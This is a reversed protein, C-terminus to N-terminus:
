KWGTNYLHHEWGLDIGTGHCIPCRIIKEGECAQCLYGQRMGEVTRFVKGNGQCTACPCKGAGYCHPCKLIGKQSESLSPLAFPVTSTSGSAAAAAPAGPSSGKPSSATDEEAPKREASALPASAAVGARGARRSSAPRREHGCSNSNPPPKGFFQVRTCDTALAGAPAVFLPM